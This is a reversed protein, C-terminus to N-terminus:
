GREEGVGLMASDRDRFVRALLFTYFASMCVLSSNVSGPPTMLFAVSMVVFGALIAVTATLRMRSRREGAFWVQLMGCVMLYTGWRPETVGIMHLQEAVEPPLYITPGWKLMGGRLAILTLGSTVEAWTTSHSVLIRWIRILRAKM